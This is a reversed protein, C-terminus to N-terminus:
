FQYRLWSSVVEVFQGTFGKILQGGDIEGAEVQERQVLSVSRGDRNTSMKIERLCMVQTKLTREKKVLNM